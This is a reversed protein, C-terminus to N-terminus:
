QHAEYIVEADLIDDVMQACAQAIPMGLVFDKIEGSLADRQRRLDELAAAMHDIHCEADHIRQLVHRRRNALEKLSSM